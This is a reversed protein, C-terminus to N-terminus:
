LDKKRAVDSVDRVLKIGLSEARIRLPVNKRGLDPLYGNAQLWESASQEYMSDGGYSFPVRGVEEDNVFITATHYTNGFKRDRWRRGIVTISRIKKTSM